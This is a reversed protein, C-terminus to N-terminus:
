AAQGGSSELWHSLALNVAEPHELSCVHGCRPIVVLDADPIRLAMRQQLDAPCLTDEAGCILLTPCAIQALTDESDARDRMALTQSTFVEPGLALGMKLLDNLTALPNDLARGLYGPKLTERLAQKLAGRQAWELHSNRQQRQEPTDARYDVGLLALRAVRHPAQRWIELAVVGGMDMGALAFRRPARVLVRSALASITNANGLDAVTVPHHTALASRQPEWVRADCMMGPLLLLPLPENM